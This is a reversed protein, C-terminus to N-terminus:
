DLALAGELVDLGEDLVADPTTLPPLLRVTHGYIGCSLVILGGELARETVARTADPDPENSGRTRVMEFAVMAGLGRVNDFPRSGNHRILGTLRETMRVGIADARRSLDEREIVDLVAHAAACGIPSGGYTGGLGGPAPSEMVEARGIVGALPYGGALAKAVTILDPTIGYHETAFLRGTRAFGTQVEDCILLIGHRDCLERLARLFSQPAVYFGGEGQVPEIIVAAVDDPAVDVKFLTELSRM